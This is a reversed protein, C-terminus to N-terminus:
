MCTITETTTAFVLQVVLQLQNTGRGGIAAVFKGKPNLKQIRHSSSDVVYINDDKDVTVGYANSFQGKRGFTRIKEGEPKLVSVCAGSGEGVIMQGKSNVATGKPRELGRM